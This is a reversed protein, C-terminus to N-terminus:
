KKEKDLKQIIKQVLEEGWKKGAEMSENLMQPMVSTVKKGTSSQYFKILNDIDEETYYKDYIPIYLESLGDPKVEKKVESVFEEAMPNKDKIMAIINDFIQFGLKNAGTVEILKLIKEKKIESQSYCLSFNFIVFGVFLRRKMYIRNLSM